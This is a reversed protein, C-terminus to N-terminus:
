MNKEIWKVVQQSSTGDDICGQEEIFKEVANLYTKEDFNKINKIFEEESGSVIPPLKNIDFYFGRDDAYENIDSAYILCPKRTLMFDFMSSSYDTVLIDSAVLLEQMDPYFSANIVKESDLNLETSKDFVNPHLRILIVFEDNFRDEFAKICKEYNFKYVEINYDKRFTPAYMVIKKNDDINLSEKVKKITKEVDNFLLDNRPVGCELIEGEYWFANKYMNTNFTSNSIFLDANKSDNKAFKIYSKPLSKEADKEVKKLAIGGHWTQIYLQKKRKRAYHNKRSNDIWVKATVYEYIAKISKHKVLRIGSPFCERTELENVLWVVDYNKNSKLLEEVIYKANDSFGRGFYNCIVIKNDKIPSICFIYWFLRDITNDYFWSTYDIIDEAFKSITNNRKIIQKLRQM